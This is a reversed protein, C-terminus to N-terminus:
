RTAGRTPSLRTGFIPHKHNFFMEQHVPASDFKEIVGSIGDLENKGAVYQSDFIDIDGDALASIASAKELIQTFVVKDSVVNDADHYNENRVMVIENNTADFSEIM